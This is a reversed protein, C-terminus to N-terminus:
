QRINLFQSRVSKDNGLLLFPSPPLLLSFLSDKTIPNPKIGLNRICSNRLRKFDKSYPLMEIQRSLPHSIDPLGQM